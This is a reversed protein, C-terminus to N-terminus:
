NSLKAKQKVEEDEEYLRDYGHVSLTLIDGLNQAGIGACKFKKNEFALNHSWAPNGYFIRL